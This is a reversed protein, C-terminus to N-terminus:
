CPSASSAGRSGRAWLLGAAGWDHACIRVRDVGVADLFRPLWRAWGDVTFDGDGRKGTRGFGPLDVAIGGAELFPLWDDASTPVGHLYLSPCTTTRRRAHFFVPQDDLEITHSARVEHM